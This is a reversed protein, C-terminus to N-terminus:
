QWDWLRLTQKGIQLNLTGVARQRGSTNPIDEFHSNSHIALLVSLTSNTPRFKRFKAAAARCTTLIDRAVIPSITLEGNHEILPNNPFPCYNRQLSTTAEPSALDRVLKPNQPDLEIIVRPLELFKPWPFLCGLNM